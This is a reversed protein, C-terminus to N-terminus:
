FVELASLVVGLGELQCGCAFSAASLQSEGKMHGETGMAGTLSQKQYPAVPSPRPTHPGPHPPCTSDNGKGRKSGRM